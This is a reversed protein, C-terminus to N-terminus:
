AVPPGEAEFATEMHSSAADDTGAYPDPNVPDPPCPLPFCATQNGEVVHKVPADQVNGTITTFDCEVTFEFVVTTNVRTYTGGAGGTCNVSGTESTGDITVSDIDVPTPVLVGSGNPCIGGAAGQPAQTVPGTIITMVAPGVYSAITTSSAHVSEYTSAHNLVFKDHDYAAGSTPLGCEEVVEPAYEWGTGAGSGVTATQAAAPGATALILSPVGLLAILVRRKKLTATNSM